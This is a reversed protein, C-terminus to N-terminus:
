RRKRSSSRSTVAATLVQQEAYALRKSEIESLESRMQSYLETVRAYDKAQWAADTKSRMQKLNVQKVYDDAARSRAQLAERYATADGKIFPMAYKQVLDALKPVFERVGEPSSVQFMVHNGRGETKDAGAWAVIEPITLQAENPEKVRGIEVGLEFSARGHYVNVFVESSEYRVFTAKEDVPHLGLDTLFKFSTLVSDKFGLGARQPNPEKSLVDGEQKSARRIGIGTVKCPGVM